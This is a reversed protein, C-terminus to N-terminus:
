CFMGGTSARGASYLIQSGKETGHNNESEMIRSRSMEYSTCDLQWQTLQELLLQKQNDVKAETNAKGGRLHASM